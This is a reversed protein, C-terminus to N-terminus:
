SYVSIDEHHALMIEKVISLGLGMGGNGTSRAADTKYLRKFVESLEAADIGIGSDSIHFIHRILTKYGTLPFQITLM